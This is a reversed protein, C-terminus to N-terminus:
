KNREPKGEQQMRKLYAPATRHSPQLKLLTQMADRAEPWLGQALLARALVYHADSLFYKLAIARQAAEAAKPAEGKRLLAEALGLWAIADNEDLLLARKALEALKDWERLRLLLMGIRRLVDPHTPHLQQAEEVLARAHRFDHKAWALEARPLLSMVGAPLTELVVELTAEAECLRGLAIQCQFLAHGNEAREPFDLFLQTLVPLAQENRDAELCSHAFNWDSERRVSAELSNGRISAAVKKDLQDAMGIRSEWCPVREIAPEASFSEILVRGEMDDGIPMGFWTLVTPAVDVVSAGHLLTDPSFGDGAAVFVGFPSKRAEAANPASGPPFDHRPAGHTSVVVVAAETGALEALRRLMLDLMRYHSSVVDRYIQFEEEAVWSRRPPHCPMFIQSIAGLAPFRVAAFDWEEDAMLQALATQCTFDAALLVRLQGLRRDRKQDIKRWQPVYRSILDSAVEDPSVRLKDLDASLEEPWYTGPVAPPWPKVGPPATPEPYRDSVIKAHCTQEDHTAPWGVVLSRRSSKALIEWLTASRRRCATIPTVQGSDDASMESSHCVGHQWARKGTAVSTWLMASVVPQVSLLTGSAGNEVLRHLAPLEGADLLPHLLKWDAAEWGVLLLRRPM